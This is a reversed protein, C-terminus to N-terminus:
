GTQHHSLMDVLVREVIYLRGAQFLFGNGNDRFVLHPFQQGRCVGGEGIRWNVAEAKCAVPRNKVGKPINGPRSLSIATLGMEGGKVDTDSVGDLSAFGLGLASYNSQVGAYAVEEGPKGFLVCAVDGRSGEASDLAETSM